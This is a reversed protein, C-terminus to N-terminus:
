CDDGKASLEADRYKLTVDRAPGGLGLFVIIVVLTAGGGIALWGLFKIITPYLVAPWGGFMFNLVIGAVGLGIAIGSALLFNSYRRRLFESFTTPTM